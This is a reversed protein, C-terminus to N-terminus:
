RCKHKIPLKMWGGAPAESELIRLSLEFKVHGSCFEPYREGEVLEERKLM